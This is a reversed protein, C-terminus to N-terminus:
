FGGSALEDGGLDDMWRGRHRPPQRKKATTTPPRAMGGCYCPIPKLNRNLPHVYGNGCRDCRLMTSM